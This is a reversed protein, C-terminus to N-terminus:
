CLLLSLLQYPLLSVESQMSNNISEMRKSLGDNLGQMKPLHHPRAVRGMSPSTNKSFDDLTIRAKAPSADKSEAKSNSLNENHNNEIDDTRMPSTSHKEEITLDDLRESVEPELDKSGRRVM